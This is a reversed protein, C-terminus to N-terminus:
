APADLRLRGARERALEGRGNCVLTSTCPSVTSAASVPHSATYWAAISSGRVPASSREVLDAREDAVQELRV